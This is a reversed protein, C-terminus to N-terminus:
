EKVSCYCGRRKGDKIAQCYKCMPVEGISVFENEPMVWNCLRIPYGYPEVYIHKTTEGKTRAVYETLM